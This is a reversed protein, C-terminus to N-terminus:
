GHHFCFDPGPPGETDDEEGIGSLKARLGCVQSAEDM